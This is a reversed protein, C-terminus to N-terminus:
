KDDVSYTIDKDFDSLMMSAHVWRENNIAATCRLQIQDLIRVNFDGPRSKRIPGAADFASRLNAGYFHRSMELINWKCIEKAEDRRLKPYVINVRLKILERSEDFLASTTLAVLRGDWMDDGNRIFIDRLLDMDYNLRMISIDLLSAREDLLYRIAPDSDAFAVLPFFLLFIARKM